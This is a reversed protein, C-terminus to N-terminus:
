LHARVVGAEITNLYTLTHSLTIKKIRERHAPKGHSIHWEESGLTISINTKANINSYKLV